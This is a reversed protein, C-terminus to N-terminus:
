TIGVMIMTGIGIGRFAPVLNWVGLTGQSMFQGLGVELFLMPAGGGMMYIFYPM